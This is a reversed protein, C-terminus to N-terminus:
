AAKLRAAIFKAFGGILIWQLYVLQLIFLGATFEGGLGQSALIAPRNMDYVFKGNIGTMGLGLAFVMMVNAAALLNGLPNTFSNSLFQRIRM